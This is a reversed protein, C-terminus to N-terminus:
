IHAEYHITFGLAVLAGAQQRQLLEGADGIWCDDVAGDPYTECVLHPNDRLTAEITTLMAVARRRKKAVSVDGDWCSIVCVVDGTETIRGGFGPEGRRNVIVAPDGVGIALTDNELDQVAPGDLIQADPLAEALVELLGTIVQDAATSMPQM